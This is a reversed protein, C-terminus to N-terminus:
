NILYLEAGEVSSNLLLVTEVEAPELSRGRVYQLPCHSLKMARWYKRFAQGTIKPCWLAFENKLLINCVLLLAKVQGNLQLVADLFPIEVYNLKRCILPKLFLNLRLFTDRQGRLLLHFQSQLPASHSFRKTSMAHIKMSMSIAVFLQTQENKRAQPGQFFDSHSKQFADGMEWNSPWYEFHSRAVVWDLDNKWSVILNM